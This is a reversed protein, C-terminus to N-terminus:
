PTASDVEEWAIDGSAKKVFPDALDKETLDSISANETGPIKFVATQGAKLRVSSGEYERETASGISFKAPVLRYRYAILTSKVSSIRLSNETLDLGLSSRNTSVQIFRQFSPETPVTIRVIGKGADNSATRDLNVWIRGSSLQIDFNLGLENTDWDQYVFLAEIDISSGGDLFIIGYYPIVIEASGGASVEISQSRNVPDGNKLQKIPATHSKPPISTAVGRINTIYALPLEKLAPVDYQDFRGTAPNPNPVNTDGICGAGLLSLMLIVAFLKKM